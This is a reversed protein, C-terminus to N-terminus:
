QSYFENAIKILGATIIPGLKVLRLWPSWSTILAAWILTTNTLFMLSSNHTDFRLSRCILKLDETTSVIYFLDAYFLQGLPIFYILRSIPACASLRKQSFVAAPTSCVLWMNYLAVLGSCLSIATLYRHIFNIM